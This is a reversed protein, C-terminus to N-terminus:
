IKGDLCVSNTLLCICASSLRYVTLLRDVHDVSPWCVNWLAAVSPLLDVAPRLLFLPLHHRAFTTLWDFCFAHPLVHACTLRLMRCICGAERSGYHNETRKHFWVTLSVYTGRTEQKKNKSTTRICGIRCNASYRCWFCIMESTAHWIGLHACQKLNGKHPLNLNQWTAKGM